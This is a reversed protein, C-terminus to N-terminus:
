HTPRQRPLVVADSPFADVFDMYRCCLFPTWFCETCVTYSIDDNTAEKLSWWEMGTKMGSAVWSVPVEQLGLHYDM